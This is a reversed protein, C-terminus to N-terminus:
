SLGSGPMIERYVDIITPAFRSAARYMADHGSHTCFLAIDAAIPPSDEARGFIFTLNPPKEAYLAALFCSTWAPDVEIAYVRRAVTALHCALLGIGAGIEVVVRGDIRPRLYDVIAGATEDDTVTLICASQTGHREHYAHMVSWGDLAEYFTELREQLATRPTGRDWTSRDATASM